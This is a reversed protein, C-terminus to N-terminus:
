GGFLRLAIAAVVVAAIATVVAVLAREGRARTEAADRYPSLAAAGGLEAIISRAASFDESAVLVPYASGALPSGGLAASSGREFTAARIGADALADVWIRAQAPDPAEAVVIPERSSM